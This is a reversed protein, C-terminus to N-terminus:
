LTNLHLSPQYDLPLNQMSNDNLVSQLYWKQVLNNGKYMLHMSWLFSDIVLHICVMLLKLYKYVWTIPFCCDCGKHISAPKSQFKFIKEETM